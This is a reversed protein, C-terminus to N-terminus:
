HNQIYRYKKQKQKLYGHVGLYYKFNYIIYDIEDLNLGTVNRVDVLTETDFEFKDKEHDM